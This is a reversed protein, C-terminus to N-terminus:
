LCRFNQHTYFYAFIFHIYDNIKSCYICTESYFHHIRFSLSYCISLTHQMPRISYMRDAEYLLLAAPVSRGFSFEGNLVSEADEPPMKFCVDCAAILESIEANLEKPKESIPAHHELFLQHIESCQENFNLPIFMPLSM